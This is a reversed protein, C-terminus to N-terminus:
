DLALRSGLPLTKYGLVRHRVPNQASVPLFSSPNGTVCEMHQRESRDSPLGPLSAQDLCAQLEKTGCNVRTHSQDHAPDMRELVSRQTTLSADSAIKMECAAVPLGENLTNLVIFRLLSQQQLWALSHDTGYATSVM